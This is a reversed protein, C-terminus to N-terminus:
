TDGLRDVEHDNADDHDRLAVAGEEEHYALLHAVDEQSPHELESLRDNEELELALTRTDLRGRTISSLKRFERAWLERVLVRTLRRDEVFIEAAVIGRRLALARFENFNRATGACETLMAAMRKRDQMPASPTIASGAFHDDKDAAELPRASERAERNREFAAELKRFNLGSSTVSSIKFFKESWTERVVVGSFPWAENVVEVVEIDLLLALEQFQHFSLARVACNQLKETMAQTDQVRGLERQSQRNAKVISDGDATRVRDEHPVNSSKNRLGVTLQLLFKREARQCAKIFKWVEFEGSWIRGDIAVRNVLVHCHDFKNRARRRAVYQHKRPDLGVDDLVFRIVKAWTGRTLREGIPCSLSVHLFPRKVDPRLARVAGFELEVASASFCCNSAVIDMPDGSPSDSDTEFQYDVAQRLDSLRSLRSKM